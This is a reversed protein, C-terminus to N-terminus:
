SLFFVGLHCCWSSNPFRALRFRGTMWSFIFATNKWKYISGLFSFLCIFCFCDQLELLSTSVVPALVGSVLYLPASTILLSVHRTLFCLHLTCSFYLVFFQSIQSFLVKHCIPILLFNLKHCKASHVFVLESSQVGSIFIVQSNYKWVLFFFLLM